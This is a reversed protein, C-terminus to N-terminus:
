VAETSATFTLIIFAYRNTGIILLSGYFLATKYTKCSQPVYVRATINKLEQRALIINITDCNQL